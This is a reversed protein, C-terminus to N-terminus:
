SLSFWWKVCVVRITLAASNGANAAWERLMDVVPHRAIATEADGQPEGSSARTQAAQPDLFRPLVVAAHGLFHGAPEATPESTERTPRSVQASAGVPDIMPVM